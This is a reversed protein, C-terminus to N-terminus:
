GHLATVFGALDQAFAVSVGAEDPTAIDGPIWRYVAWPGPYGAGPEGIAVPEPVPVPVHAAIRRANDQEGALEARLKPGPSPRPPFRLVFEDGLRFLANVTGHSTVVRVPLEGWQPFQSAVLGTVVDATIEAQDAHMTVRDDECHGPRAALRMEGAG